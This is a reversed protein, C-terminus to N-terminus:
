PTETKKYHWNVSNGKKRNYTSLLFLFLDFLSDGDCRNENFCKMSITQEKLVDLKQQTRRLSQRPFVFRVFKRSIM